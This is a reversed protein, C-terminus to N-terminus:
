GRTNRQQRRAQAPVLFHNSLCPLFVGRAMIQDQMSCQKSHKTAAAGQAECLSCMDSTENGNARTVDQLMKQDVPAVV